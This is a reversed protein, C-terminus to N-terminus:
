NAGTADLAQNFGFVEIRQEIRIGKGMRHYQWSKEGFRSLVEQVWVVSM